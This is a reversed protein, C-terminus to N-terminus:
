QNLEDNEDIEVLGCMVQFILNKWCDQDHMLKLLAAKSQHRYNWLCKTYEKRVEVEPLDYKCDKGANNKTNEWGSIQKWGSFTQVCSTFLTDILFSEFGHFYYGNYRSNRKLIIDM